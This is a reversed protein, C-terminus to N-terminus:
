PRDGELRTCLHRWGGGRTRPGQLPLDAAHAAAAGDCRQQREDRWQIRPRYKADADPALTRFREPPAGWRCPGIGRGTAIPGVGEQRRGVERGAATAPEAFSIRSL